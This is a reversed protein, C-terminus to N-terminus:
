NELLIFERAGDPKKVALLPRDKLRALLEDDSIIEYAPAPKAAITVVHPPSPHQRLASVLVAVLGATAGAALLSARLRRRRRAHTAAMRAFLSAPGSEWDDHFVEALLRSKPDPTKNM